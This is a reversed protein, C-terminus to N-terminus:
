MRGYRESENNFNEIIGNLNKIDTENQILKQYKIRMKETEALLGSQFTHHLIITDASQQLSLGALEAYGTTYPYKLESDVEIQKEKVEKAELYKEQYILNQIASRGSYEMRDYDIRANIISLAHVKQNTLIFDNLEEISTLGFDEYWQTKAGDLRIKWSESRIFNFDPSINPVMNARWFGKEVIKDFTAMAKIAAFDKSIAVLRQNNGMLIYCDNYDKSNSPTKNKDVLYKNLKYLAADIDFKTLM